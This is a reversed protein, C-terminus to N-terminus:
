VREGSVDAIDPQGLEIRAQRAAKEPTAGHRILEEARADIHFQFEASADFSIQDRHTLANWWSRIRSRIRPFLNM